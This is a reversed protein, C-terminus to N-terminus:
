RINWMLNLGYVPGFKALDSYLGVRPGILFQGFEYNISLDVGGVNKGIAASAGLWFKEYWKREKDKLVSPDLKVELESPFFDGESSDLYAMYNNDKKTVVIALKLPRTWYLNLGAEAPNTLTWGKVGLYGDEKAFDVKFRYKECVTPLSEAPLTEGTESDIISDKINDYDEKLALYKGKWAINAGTLSVVEENKTKLDSYLKDNDKKLDRYLDDMIRTSKSWLDLSKNYALDQFKSAGLLEENRKELHVSRQWFYVVGAVLGIVLIIVLVLGVFTKFKM